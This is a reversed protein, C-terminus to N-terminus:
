GPFPDDWLDREYLVGTVDVYAALVLNLIVSLLVNNDYDVPDTKFHCITMQFLSLIDKAQSIIQKFNGLLM